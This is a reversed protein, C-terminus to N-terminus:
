FGGLCLGVVKVELVSKEILREVVKFGKLKLYCWKFQTHVHSM